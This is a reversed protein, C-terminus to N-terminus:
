KLVVPGMFVSMLPHMSLQQHGGTDDDITEEKEKELWSVCERHKLNGKCM